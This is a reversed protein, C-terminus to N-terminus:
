SFVQALKQCFLGSFFLAGDDPKQARFGPLARLGLARFGPVITNDKDLVKLVKIAEECVQMGRSEFVEVSGLYKVHFSCNGSRVNVEDSQWAGQGGSGGKSSGGEGNQPGGGGDLGSGSKKKRLSKRFSQRLKDM